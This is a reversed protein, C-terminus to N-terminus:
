HVCVGAVPLAEGQGPGAPAHLLRSRVVRDGRLVLAVDAEGGDRRNGNIYRERERTRPQAARQASRVSHTSSRALRGRPRSRM